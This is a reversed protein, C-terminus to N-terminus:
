DATPTFVPSGFGLMASESGCTEEQWNIELKEVGALDIDWDRYSVDSITASDFVVGDILAEVHVATVSEQEVNALAVIMTLKDYDGSLDYVVSGSKPQGTTCVSAGLATAHVVGKMTAGDISLLSGEAPLPSGIAEPSPLEPEDSQAGESPPEQDEGVVGVTLSQGLPESPAPNQESIKGVPVDPSTTGILELKVEAPLANRAESVSMGRLDPAINKAATATPTVQPSPVPDPDNKQGNLFVFVGAAALLVALLAVVIVVMLAGRSGGSTASPADPAFGNPGDGYVTPGLPPALPPSAPPMVGNAGPTVPVHGRSTPLVETPQFVETAEGEEHVVEPESIGDTAPLVVAPTQPPAPLSVSEPAGAATLPLPALPAELREAAAIGSFQRVLKLLADEVAAADAPRQTPDKALLWTIMDWLADPIGEPRAATTTAHRLLVAMVSDGAFPTVGVAMEYLVIGLSYLDSAPLANHGAGIEPAIYQPTGVVTTSRVHDVDILSSIGFDTLKPIPAATPGDLLINAPKIDRHVIGAAHVVSLGSAIGAGIRCIESPIFPGRSLIAQRLDGGAVLDMVIALTDGEIVLDHVEVLNAGRLALLISRERMFREVLATDSALEAHLIKFALEHGQHDNGRYAEGMAGRGISEEITYKSGLARSM